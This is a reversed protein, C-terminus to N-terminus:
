FPRFLNMPLIEGQVKIDWLLWLCGLVAASCGQHLSLCGVPMRLPALLLQPLQGERLEDLVLQVLSKLEPGDLMRPGVVLGGRPGQQLLVLDPLDHMVLGVEAVALDNPQSGPGVRLPAQDAALSTRHDEQLGTRLLAAENVDVLLYGGSGGSRVM